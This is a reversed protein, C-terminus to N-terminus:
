RTNLIEEILKKGFKPEFEKYVPQTAKFFAKKDPRTVIMGKEILKSLQSEEQKKILNREYTAVERATDMFIKKYEPKLSDFRAKSMLIPAPSYFHGTLALYKQVEYLKFTWIIPIPNEQAQIVGQQLATFVEGWAMPTPNAGLVKFTALHVPNEMTRIKIGKLDSPKNIPRVSNTIHRFGNEWFALGKIGVKELQAFLKRGIPGDLVKYAQERTQFIFPLDVVGMLPAFGSLPGTSTVVLDITGLQLGEVMDRENGLQRNPFIKIKIAGNTRKEILQAFRVAGLHYPHETTVAHGLRLVTVAWATSSIAVLCLALALVMLRKM